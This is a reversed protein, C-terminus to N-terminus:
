LKEQKKVAHSYQALLDQAKVPTPNLADEVVQGDRFKVQRQCYDAISLDHTVLIITIGRANLQQLIMMMELGTRSDLNGTPEDALIMSPRTVLARAVAVRQQQGGSMESPRHDSRTGLGVMALAQLARTRREDAPVGAYVLPLAVNELASMRALLNFGQFIFGIKQNRIDALENKSMESVPVGDLRYIGSTPSDLCGILNMLTSKGSGSPGMIAVFDGRGIEMSVGRLAQVVNRGMYYYKSLKEIQIVPHAVPAPRLPDRGTEIRIVPDAIPVPKLSASETEEKESLEVQKTREKIAAKPCSLPTEVAAAAALIAAV